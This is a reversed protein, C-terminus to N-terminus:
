HLYGKRLAELVGGEILVADAFRQYEPYSISAKYEGFSFPVGEPEDPLSEGSDSAGEGDPSEGVATQALLADVEEPAWGTGELNGQSAINSLVDALTAFDWGGLEMTRNLAIALASEQEEPVNVTYTPVLWQGSVDKVGSPAPMGNLKMQRLAELRGNGSLVHGTPENRVLPDVFGWKKLSTIIAGIDHDKANQPLILAEAIDVFVLEV